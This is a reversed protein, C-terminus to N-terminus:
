EYAGRVWSGGFLRDAFGFKGGEDIINNEDHCKGLQKFGGTSYLMTVM